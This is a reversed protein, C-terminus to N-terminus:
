RAPESTTFVKETRGPESRQSDALERLDAATSTLFRTLAILRRVAYATGAPDGLLAEREGIEAVVRVSAFASAIGECLPGPDDPAPRAPANM